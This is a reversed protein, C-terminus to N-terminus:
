CNSLLRPMPGSELYLNSCKMKVVHKHPLYKIVEMKLSSFRFHSLDLLKGQDYLCGPSSGLKPVSYLKVPRGGLSQAAASGAGNRWICPIAGAPWASSIHYECM